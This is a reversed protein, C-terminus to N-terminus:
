TKGGKILTLTPRPKRREVISKFYRKIDKALDKQEEKQKAKKKVLGEVHDDGLSKKFSSITQHANSIRVDIWYDVAKEIRTSDVGNLEAVRLLHKWSVPATSLGMKANILRIQSYNGLGDNWMQRHEIILSGDTAKFWMKFDGDSYEFLKIFKEELTMM